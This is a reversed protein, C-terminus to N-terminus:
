DSKTLSFELVHRAERIPVAWEVRWNGKGRKNTSLWYELSKTVNQSPLPVAGALKIPLIGSAITLM